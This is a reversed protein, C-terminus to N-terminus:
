VHARGIESLMSERWKMYNERGLLQIPKTSLRDKALKRIRDQEKGIGDIGLTTGGGITTPVQPTAAQLQAQLAQIQSQLLQIQAAMSNGQQSNEDVSDDSMPTLISQDATRGRRPAM